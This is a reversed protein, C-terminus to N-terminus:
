SSIDLFNKGLTPGKVKLKKAELVTLYRQEECIM